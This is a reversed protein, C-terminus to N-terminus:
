IYLGVILLIGITVLTIFYAVGVKKRQYFEDEISEYREYAAVINKLYRNREEETIIGEELLKENNRLSDLLDVYRHPYDKPIM